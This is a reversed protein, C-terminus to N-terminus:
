RAHCLMPSKEKNCSIYNNSIVSRLVESGPHGLRQHWTYQITLYVQPIPFPNTVSYLPGNSDCRLLVRRTQFDKVSFGFPDFEVSAPDQLTGTTFAHPLTTEQDALQGSSVSFGTQQGALHVQGGLGQLGVQQGALHVQGGLGLHGTSTMPSSSTDRCTYTTGMVVDADGRAPLGELAFTVVDDSTMHSGLSTLITAISEIKRFYADINMDGLKLSRLKAKLSILRTRKNDYFSDALIDWAQKASQPNDVVLRQQLTKSITVFIWSLIIM